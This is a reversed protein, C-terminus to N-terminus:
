ANTGGKAQPAANACTAPANPAANACTAPANPAANARPAEKAFSGLADVYVAFGVANGAKGLKRMLKDYQGGSLVESPVGLVYGMFVIGNYYSTDNMLSFDFRLADLQGADAFADIIAQITAIAQADYGRAALWAPLEATAGDYSLLETLRAVEDAPLGCGACLRELEHYNKRAIFGYLAQRDPVPLAWGEVMASVLDLDTVILRSDPSICALSQTALLLVDIVCRTDVAGLCEVGSQMLEKFAGTSQSVRYVNEDYCLRALEDPNFRCNRVLSLTVDPKLAMLKGNTDTFSIVNDSILFEKNTAYLDYPEFKSMKYRKYGRAQYLARLTFVLSEEYSMLSDDIYM